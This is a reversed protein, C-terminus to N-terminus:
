WGRDEIVWGTSRSPVVFNKFWLYPNLVLYTLRMKKVFFYLKLNEAGGWNYSAGMITGENDFEMIGLVIPQDVPTPYAKLALNQLKVLFKEPSETKHNFKMNEFNIHNIEKLNPNWFHNKLAAKTLELESRTNQDLIDFFQLASDNLHLKLFGLGQAEVIGTIEVISRFM